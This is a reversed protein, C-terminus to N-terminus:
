ILLFFRSRQPFANKITFCAGLCFILNHVLKRSIFRTKSMLNAIDIYLLMYITKTFSFKVFIYNMSPCFDLFM